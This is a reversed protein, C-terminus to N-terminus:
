LHLSISRDHRFFDQVNVALPLCSKCELTEIHRVTRGGHKYRLQVVIAITDYTKMDEVSISLVVRAEPELDGLDIVEGAVVAQSSDGDNSTTNLQHASVSKAQDVFSFHLTCALLKNPGSKLHLSLQRAEDLYIARSRALSLRSRLDSRYVLIHQQKGANHFSQSIILSGLKLM